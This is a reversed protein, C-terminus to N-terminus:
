IKDEILLYLDQLKKKVDKVRGRRAAAISKVELAQKLKENECILDRIQQEYQLNKDSAASLFEVASSYKKELSLYSNYLSNYSEIPCTTNLMMDREYKLHQNLIELVRNNHKFLNLKIERDYRSMKKAQLKENFIKQTKLDLQLQAIQLILEDNKNSFTHVSKKLNAIEGDKHTSNAELKLLKTNYRLKMANQQAKLNTLNKKLETNEYEVEALRELHVKLELEKEEIIQKIHLVEEYTIKRANPEPTETIYTSGEDNVIKFENIHKSIALNGNRKGDSVLNEEWEFDIQSGDSEQAMCIPSGNLGRPSFNFSVDEIELKPPFFSFNEEKTMNYEITNKITHGEQASISLPLKDTMMLMDRQSGYDRSKIEKYILSHLDTQIENTRTTTYTDTGKSEQKIFSGVSVSAQHLKEIIYLDQLQSSDTQCFESACEQATQIACTITEKKAEEIQTQYNAIRAKLNQNQQELENLQADIEGKRETLVQLYDYIKELNLPEIIQTEM